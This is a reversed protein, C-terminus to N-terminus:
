HWFCNHPCPLPAERAGLVGVLLEGLLSAGRPQVYASNPSGDGAGLGSVPECEWAVDARCTRLETLDLSM